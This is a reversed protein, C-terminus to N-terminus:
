IGHLKLENDVQSLFMQNHFKEDILSQYSLLKQESVSMQALLIKCYKIEKAEALISFILSILRFYRECVLSGHSILLNFCRRNKSEETQEQRATEFDVKTIGYIYNARKCYCRKQANRIMEDICPEMSLEQMATPIDEDAMMGLYKKGYLAEKLCNMERCIAEFCEEGHYSVLVFDVGKLEECRFSLSDVVKQRQDLLNFFTIEFREQKFSRNQSILTKYLLLISVFAAIGSLADGYSALWGNANNRMLVCLGLAFLLVILSVIWESIKRYWRLILKAMIQYCKAVFGWIAILIRKGRCFLFRPIRGTVRGM